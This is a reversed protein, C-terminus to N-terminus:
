AASGNESPYSRLPAPILHLAPICSSEKSTFSQSRSPAYRLHRRVEEATQMITARLSPFRESLAEFSIRDLVYLRCATVAVVSATRVTNTLM